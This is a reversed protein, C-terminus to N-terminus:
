QLTPTLHILGLKQLSIFITIFTGITILLYGIIASLSLTKTSLKLLIIGSVVALILGYGADSLMMGFFIFYFPAMFPNVDFEKHNPMSFLETILELEDAYVLDSISGM